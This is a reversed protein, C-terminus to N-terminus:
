RVSAGLTLRRLRGNGDRLLVSAPDIEVIRAGRVDDGPGVIRGDIIALRRDSSYLITGLVADFAEAPERADTRAVRSPDVRPVSEAAPVTRMPVSVSTLLTSRPRPVAPEARAVAEPPTLLERVRAPPEV